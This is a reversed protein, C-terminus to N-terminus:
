ILGPNVAESNALAAAFVQNLFYSLGATAGIREHIFLLGAHKFCFYNLGKALRHLRTQLAALEILCLRVYNQACLSLDTLCESV